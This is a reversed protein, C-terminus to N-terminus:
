PQGCRHSCLAALCMGQGNESATAADRVKRDFENWRVILSRHPDRFGDEVWIIYDERFSQIKTAQRQLLVVHVPACAEAHPQRARQEPLGLGFRGSPAVCDVWQRMGGRRPPGASFGELVKLARPRDILPDMHRQVIIEGDRDGM